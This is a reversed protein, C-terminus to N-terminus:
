EFYVENLRMINLAYIAKAQSLYFFFFSALFRKPILPLFSILHHSLPNPTFYVLQLFTLFALWFIKAWSLIATSVSSKWPMPLWVRPPHHLYYALSSVLSPVAQFSHSTRNPLNNLHFSLLDSTIEPLQLRRYMNLCRVSHFKMLIQSPHFSCPRFTGGSLWGPRWCVYWSQEIRTM